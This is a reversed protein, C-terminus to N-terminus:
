KTQQEKKKKVHYLIDTREGTEVIRIKELAIHAADLNQFFSLGQGLLVPMIGIHLENVLGTNLLQQVMSRTGIINVEKNGAAAKAQRVASEVGDTVFTVRLNDNAGKTGDSPPHHTVVFIPVQYEYGTFDGNAMDYAHRGMVVAGTNKISEQMMPTEDLATLDPYLAEVSGTRDNIFGDLSMTTGLIVKSMLKNVTATPAFCKANAYLAAFAEGRCRVRM